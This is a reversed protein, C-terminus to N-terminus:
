RGIPTFDAKRENHKPNLLLPIFYTFAQNCGNFATFLAPGFTLM